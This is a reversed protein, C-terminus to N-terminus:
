VLGGMAGISVTRQPASGGPPSMTRLMAASTAAEAGPAGGAGAGLPGAPPGPIRLGGGGADAALAAAGAPPSGLPPVGGLARADLGAAAAPGHLLLSAGDPSQPPAGNSMRHLMQAQAQAAAAAVRV